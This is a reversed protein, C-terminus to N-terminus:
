IQPNANIKFGLVWGEGPCLVQFKRQLGNNWWQRDKMAKSQNKHPKRFTKKNANLRGKVWGEGPCEFSFTEREGNNWLHMGKRRHLAKMLNGNKLAAEFSKRRLEACKEPTITKYYNLLAKIGAKGGKSHFDQSQHQMGIKGAKSCNKLFEERHEDRWKKAYKQRTINGHEAHTIYVLNVIRNDTKDENLHHVDYGIKYGYLTHCIIAHVPYLKKKIGYKTLHELYVYPREKLLHEELIVGDKSKIKGIEEDCEYNEFVEDKFRIM